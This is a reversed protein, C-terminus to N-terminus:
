ATLITSWQGITDCIFIATKGAAVAFAADTALANIKEGSAPFVNMSNAAARNVVKMVAALLGISVNNGIRTGAQTSPLTASDAATAVTTFVSIAKTLALGSAQGGGAHATLGTACSEYPVGNADLARVLNPSTPLVFSAGSPGGPLAAKQLEVNEILTPQAPNAM